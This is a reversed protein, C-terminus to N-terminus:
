PLLTHMSKKDYTKIISRTENSEIRSKLESKNKFETITQKSVFIDTQETV